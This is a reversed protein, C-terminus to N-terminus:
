ASARAERGLLRSYLVAVAIGIVLLIASLAAAFPWDLLELTQEQIVVSMLQARPGGVLSPTAFASVALSFVLLSGALLGGSSLRLTVLWVAAGPSAGLNMAANELDRDISRIVAYLTVVMLPLLVQALAIVIGAFSYMLQFNAPVLGLDRLAVTMLGNRYFLVMWAFSRVVASIWLPFTAIMLLLPVYRSELRALWFALPFGLAACILTVLAALWLSRGLVGLYHADGLFRTYNALGWPAPKSFSSAVLTVQPWAFLLVFVAIAPALLTAALLPRKM